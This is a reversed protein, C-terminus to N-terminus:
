GLSFIWEGNTDSHVVHQILEIFGPTGPFYKGPVAQASFWPRSGVPM